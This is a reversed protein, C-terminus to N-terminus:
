IQRPNLKGQSRRKLNNVAITSTLRKETSFDMCLLAAFLFFLCRGPNTHLFYFDFLGILLLGIFISLVIRTMENESRSFIGKFLSLLFGGFALAGLVGTEALILLYINHVKAFCAEVYREPVYRPSLIQYNNFGGGAIPHDKFIEWAINQYVVREKDASSVVQNYNVIGGRYFFQNFFLFLCILGSGVFVGLTRMRRMMVANRKLKKWGQEKICRYLSITLWLCSGFATAMIASRSFTISLTFVQVFLAGYLLRRMWQQSEGVILYYTSLISAFLFGGMVNPHPFTGSCRCLVTQDTVRNIWQDFIWRYGGAMPFNFSRINHEGLGKLGLPQQLFYQAIGISCQLLVAFIFVQLCRKALQENQSTKLLDALTSFLLFSLGLQALRYYQIAYGASMSCVISLMAAGFFLILYKTPGSWLFRGIAQRHCYLCWGFLVLIIFDTTYFEMKKGFFSPLDLDTPVLSYSIKKLIGAFRKQFTVYFLLFFLLGHVVKKIPFKRVNLDASSACAVRSEM